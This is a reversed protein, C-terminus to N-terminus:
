IYFFNLFLKSIHFCLIVKTIYILINFVFNIFCNNTIKAAVIIIADQEFPADVEVEAVASEVIVSEAVVTAIVDVTVVVSLEFALAGTLSVTFFLL